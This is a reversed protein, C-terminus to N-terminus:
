LLRYSASSPVQEAHMLIRYMKKREYGRDHMLAVAIVQSLAISMINIQEVLIIFFM